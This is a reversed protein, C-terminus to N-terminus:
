SKRYKKTLIDNEIIIVHHNNSLGTMIYSYANNVYKEGSQYTYLIHAKNKIEIEETLFATKMDM